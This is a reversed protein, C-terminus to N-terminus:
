FKFVLFFCDFFVEHYIVLGLNKRSSLIHSEIHIAIQNM